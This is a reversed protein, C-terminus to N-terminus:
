MGCDVPVFCINVESPRSRLNSLVARATTYAQSAVSIAGNVLTEPLIHVAAGFADQPQNPSYPTQNATGFADQPQHPSHQTQNAVGFADHPQNPSYPTQNAAGLADQPQNPSLTDATNCYPTQSEHGKFGNQINRMSSSTINHFSNGFTQGNRSTQTNSFSVDFPDTTVQAHVAAHFSSKRGSNHDHETEGRKEQHPPESDTDCSNKSSHAHMKSNGAFTYSYYNNDYSTWAFDVPMCHGAMDVAYIKNRSPMVYETREHSLPEYHPSTEPAMESAPSDEVECDSKQGDKVTGFNPSITCSAAATNSPLTDLLNTESEIEMDHKDNKSEEVQRKVFVPVAGTLVSLIHGVIYFQYHPLM